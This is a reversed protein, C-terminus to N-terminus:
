STRVYDSYFNCAWHFINKYSYPHIPTQLTLPPSPTSHPHPSSHPATPQSDRQHLHTPLSSSSPQPSQSLIVKCTLNLIVILPFHPYSSSSITYLATPSTGQHPYQGHCPSTRFIAVNLTLENIDM